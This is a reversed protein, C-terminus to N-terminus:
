EVIDDILSHNMSANDDDDGIETVAETAHTAEEAADPPASAPEEGGLSAARSLVRPEQFGNCTGDLQELVIICRVHQKVLEAHHESCAFGVCGIRHRVCALLEEGEGICFSVVHTPQYINLLERVLTESKAWPIM